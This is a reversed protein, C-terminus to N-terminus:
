QKIKSPGGHHGVLTARPRHPRPPSRPRPYGRQQSGQPHHLTRVPAQGVGRVGRSTNETGPPVVGPRTPRPAAPTGAAAEAYTSAPRGPSPATGVGGQDAERPHVELIVHRRQALSQLLSSISEMPLGRANDWLMGRELSPGSRVALMWHTGSGVLFAPAAKGGERLPTVDRNGYVSFGRRRTSVCYNGEAHPVTDQANGDTLLVAEASAVTDAIEDLVERGVPPMGQVRRWNNLTWLGCLLSGAPRPPPGPNKAEGIRYTAPVWGTGEEEGSLQAAM